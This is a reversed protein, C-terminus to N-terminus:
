TVRVMYFTTPVIMDRSHSFSSDDFKACMYVIYLKIKQTVFWGFFAVHVPDYVIKLKSARLWIEPVASAIALNQICTYYIWHSPLSGGLPYPCDRSGNEFKAWGGIMDKSNTFSYANRIKYGSRYVLTSTCAIRISCIRHTWLRSSKLHPFIFSLPAFYLSYHFVLLSPLCDCQTTTDFPVMALVRSHGQLDSKSNSVKRVGMGRSVNCSNVLM